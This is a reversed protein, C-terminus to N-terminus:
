PTKFFQKIAKLKGSSSELFYVGSSLYGFDQTELDSGRSEIILQGISDYINYKMTEIDINNDSNYKITLNDMVPNPVITFDLSADSADVNEWKGPGSDEMTSASSEGSNGCDYYDIELALLRIRNSNGISGASGCITLEGTANPHSTNSSYGMHDLTRRAYDNLKPVMTGYELYSYNYVQAGKKVRVVLHILDGGSYNDIVSQTTTIANIVDYVPTTNTVINKGNMFQSILTYNPNNSNMIEVSVIAVPVSLLSSLQDFVLPCDSFLKSSSEMIKLKYNSNMASVRILPNFITSAGMYSLIVCGGNLSVIANVGWLVITLFQKYIM